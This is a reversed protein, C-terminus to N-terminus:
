IEPTPWWEPKNKTGGKLRCDVCRVPRWYYEDNVGFIVEPINSGFAEPDHYTTPVFGQKYLKGWDGRAPVFPEPLPEWKERYFRNIRDDVFLRRTVPKVVSVYGLVMEKEDSENVINGRLESPEPSFLGGVDTTNRKLAEWYRFAEESIRTQRVEVGYVYSVRWDTNALTYIQYNVLRDETLAETSGTMLQSRSDSTWCYYINEGNEFAAVTDKSVVGDKYRTGAPMFYYFAYCDSRYEWTEEATWRYFGLREPSHTSVRIAMETGRENISYSLSDIAAPEVLSSWSSVYRRPRVEGAGYDSPLVANLVIRYQLSPDAERMDVSYYESHGMGEYISGDSAEVVFRHIDVRESQWTDLRSSLHIRFSSVEGLAIDGEIVLYGDEGSLDPNFDYICSSVSAALVLMLLSIVRFPKM